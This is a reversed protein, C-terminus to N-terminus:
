KLLLLGLLARVYSKTWHRKFAPEPIGQKFQMKHFTICLIFHMCTYKTVRDHEARQSGMSQSTKRALISFHTATEEELPDEWGLSGVQTEQIEQM